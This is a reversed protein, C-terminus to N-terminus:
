CVENVMDVLSPFEQESIFNRQYNLNGKQNYIRLEIRFGAKVTAKLKLYNKYLQREFTYVSKVEFLNM